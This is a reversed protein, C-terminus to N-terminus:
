GNADILCFKKKISFNREVFFRLEAYRMKANKM